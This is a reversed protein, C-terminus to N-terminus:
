KQFKILANQRTNKEAPWDPGNKLLEVAEGECAKCSSKLIIINGPRRKRNVKFSLIVEGTLRVNNEDYLPTTNEELYKDFEKNNNIVPNIELGKTKENLQKPTSAPRKMKKKLTRYGTVVVESLGANNRNVAIAPEESEKLRIEKSAYGLASVTATVASDNSPFSFNGATDTVVAKNKNEEKIIAFALPRGQDNTVKGRLSYKEAFQNHYDNKAIENRSSDPFNDKLINASAIPQPPEKNVDAVSAEKENVPKKALSVDLKKQETKQAVKQEFALNDKQSTDVFVVASDKQHISDQQQRIALTNNKDTKRYNIQYFFYGAGAIIALLAAIRWWGNEKFSFLPIVNKKKAKESLRSRLDSIDKAASSSYAYGELADALFPDELAAKELAHMESAPMSGNHYREFDTANYTKNKETM